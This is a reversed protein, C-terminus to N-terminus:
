SANTYRALPVLANVASPRSDTAAKFRLVAAERALLEDFPRIDCARLLRNEAFDRRHDETLAKVRAMRM